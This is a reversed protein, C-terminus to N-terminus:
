TTAEPLSDTAGVGTRLETLRGALGHSGMVGGKLRFPM